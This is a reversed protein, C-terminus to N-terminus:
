AYCIDGLGEVRTKIGYGEAELFNVIFYLLQFLACGTSPKVVRCASRTELGPCLVAVCVPVREHQVRHPLHIEITFTRAVWSLLLSLTNFCEETISSSERILSFQYICVATAEESINHQASILLRQVCSSVEVTNTLGMARQHKKGEYAM